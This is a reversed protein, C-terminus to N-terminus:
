GRILKNELDAASCGNLFRHKGYREVAQFSEVPRERAPDLYTFHDIRWWQGYTVKLRAMEAAPTRSVHGGRGSAM